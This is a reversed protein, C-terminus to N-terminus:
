AESQELANAPIGHPVHGVPPHMMHHNMPAITQPSRNTPAVNKDIGASVMAPPRDLADSRIRLM